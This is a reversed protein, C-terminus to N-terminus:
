KWSPGGVSTPSNEPITTEEGFFPVFYENKNSIRDEVDPSRSDIFNFNDSHKNDSSLSDLYSSYCQTNEYVEGTDSVTDYCVLTSNTYSNNSNYDRIEDAMDPTLSVTLIPDNEYAQEKLEEIGNEGKLTLNAKEMVFGFKDNVDYDYSWNYGLERDNPNFNNSSYVRFYLDGITVICNPCINLTGGVECDVCEPEPIEYSCTYDGKYGNVGLVDAVSETDPSSDILRGTTCNNKDDYFSGLNKINFEFKHMGEPVDVKVPLGNVLTDDDGAQGYIIDGTGMVTYFVKPTTYNMVKTSSYKYYDATYISLTIEQGQYHIVDEKLERESSGNCSNYKEDTLAGACYMTNPTEFDQSVLDLEKHEDNQILDFYGSDYEYEIEPSQSFNVEWTSCANLKATAEEVEEKVEEFSKGSNIIEEIDQNYQNKDIQDTYCSKTGKIEAGISFYRGNQTEQIGPFKFYEYDEKCSISCYPNDTLLNETTEPVYINKENDLACGEATYSNGADDEGNVVCNIIDEPATISGVNIADGYAGEGFETCNNAVDMITGCNKEEPVECEAPKYTKNITVFPVDTGAEWLAFRQYSANGNGLFAGEGSPGVNKTEYSYNITYKSNNCDDFKVLGDIKSQVEMIFKIKPNSSLDLNILTDVKEYVGDENTVYYDVKNLKAQENEPFDISFATIKGEGFESATMLYTRYEVKYYSDNEEETETDTDSDEDTDSEDEPITVIINKYVEFPYFEPAKQTDEPLNPKETTPDIYTSSVSATGMELKGSGEGNEQSEAYEGAGIVGDYFLERAVLMITKEAAGSPVNFYFNDYAKGLGSNAYRTTMDNENNFKESLINLSDYIATKNEDTEPYNLIGTRSGWYEGYSGIVAAHQRYTGTNAGNGYGFNWFGIAYARVALMTAYYYDDSSITTGDYTYSNNGVNNFGNNLIEILGAEYSRQELSSEARMFMADTSYSIQLSGDLNPDLCYIATLGKETQIFYRTTNYKYSGNGSKQYPMGNEHQVSEVGYSKPTSYYLGTFFNSKDAQVVYNRDPTLYAEVNQVNVLILAFISIIFLKLFKNM